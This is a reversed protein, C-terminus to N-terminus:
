HQLTEIHPDSRVNLEKAIYQASVPGQARRLLQVIEFLREAKRM